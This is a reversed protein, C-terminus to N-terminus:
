ASGGHRPEPPPVAREEVEWGGDPREVEIWFRSSIGQEGFERNRREAEAAARSQDVASIHVRM